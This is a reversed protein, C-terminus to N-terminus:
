PSEDPDTTASRRSTTTTRRRDDDDITTSTSTTTSEGTPLVPDGVEETDLELEGRAEAQDRSELSSRGTRVNAIARVGEDLTGREGRSIPEYDGNPTWVYVLGALVALATVAFAGRGVGSTQNWGWKWVRAGLRAFTYLIGIIPLLVILSQV